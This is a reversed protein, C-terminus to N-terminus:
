TGVFPGGRGGLGLAEAGVFFLGRRLLWRDRLVPVGRAAAHEAFAVLAQRRGFVRAPAAASWAGELTAFLAHIPQGPVM